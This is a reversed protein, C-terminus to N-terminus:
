IGTVTEEISKTEAKKISNKEQGERGWNSEKEGVKEEQGQKYAGRSEEPTNRSPVQSYLSFTGECENNAVKLYMISFWISGQDPSNHNNKHCTKQSAFKFFYRLGASKSNFIRTWSSPLATFSLFFFYKQPPIPALPQLLSQPPPM